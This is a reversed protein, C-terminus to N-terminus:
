SNRRRLEVRGVYPDKWTYVVRPFTNLLYQKMPESQLMASGPVVIAIALHDKEIAEVWGEPTSEGVKLRHPNTDALNAALICDSVSAAFPGLSYEGFIREGPRCEARVARVFEDITPAAVTEHQLYRSITPPLHIADSVPTWFLNRLAANLTSGLYPSDRWAYRSMGSGMEELRDTAISQRFAIVGALVIGCGVVPWIHGRHKSVEVSARKARRKDARSPRTSVPAAVMESADRRMQESVFRTVDLAVYAGM